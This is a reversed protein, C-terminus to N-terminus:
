SGKMLQRRRQREGPKQKNKTDLVLARQYSEAWEEECQEGRGLQHTQGRYKPGFTASWEAQFRYLTETERRDRKEDEYADEWPRHRYPGWAESRGSDWGAVVTGGMHVHRPDPMLLYGNGLKRWHDCTLRREPYLWEIEAAAIYRHARRKIIYNIELVEEEILMRGTQVDLMNFITDRMLDDNPGMKTAPQYPNRVWAMNTLILVKELSLPFITQTGVLRIDPDYPFKCQVSGPFCDRNYVTIPHDSVIFKTPSRSADAIQWVSDTWAACFLNQYYQLLRMTVNQHASGTMTRLWALGKPTRLKQVSMYRIFTEFAKHTENRISYDAYAAVAAKGADDLDGFFFREIDVNEIKGWRTTYLDDGAFCSDVGWHLLEKRTWRHGNREVAEPALDLYHYRSQGSLMFAQQYWKPVYHNHHYGRGSM